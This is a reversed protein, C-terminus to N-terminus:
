FDSDRIKNLRELVGLYFDGDDLSYVETMADADDATRGLM